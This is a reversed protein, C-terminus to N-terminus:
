KFFDIELLIAIVYLYFCFSVPPTIRYEPKIQVRIDTGAVFNLLGMFLGELAVLILCMLYVQKLNNVDTHM